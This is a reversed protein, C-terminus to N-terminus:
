SLHVPDQEFEGVATVGERLPESAAVEALHVCAAVRVEVGRNCHLEELLVDLEIRDETLRLHLRPRAIVCTTVTRFRM